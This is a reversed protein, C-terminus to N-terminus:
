SNSAGAGDEARRKLAANLEIFGAETRELTRGMFRPLLGTFQEGHTLRVGSGDPEILFYHEGDFLGPILLRGKWRLERVPEVRLVVPQFGMPKGGPPQMKLKLKEGERLEGSGEVIFPNWDPYAGLDSLVEWVTEPSARILETTEITPM